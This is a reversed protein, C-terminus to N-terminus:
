FLMNFVRYIGYFFVAVAVYLFIVYLLDTLPMGVIFFIILSVVVTLVFTIMIFNLIGKSLKTMKKIICLNNSSNGATQFFTQSDVM